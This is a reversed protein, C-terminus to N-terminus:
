LLLRIGTVTAVLVVCADLAHRERDRYKESLHFAYLVPDASIINMKQFSLQKKFTTRSGINSFRQCLDDWVAYAVCHTHASM